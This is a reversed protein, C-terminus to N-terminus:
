CISHQCGVEIYAWESLSWPWVVTLWQLLGCQCVLDENPSWHVSPLYQLNVAAPSALTSHFKMSKCRSNTPPYYEVFGPIGAAHFWIMWYHLHTFSVPKFNKSRFHWWHSDLHCFHQQQLERLDIVAQPAWLIAHHTGWSRSLFKSTTQQDSFVQPNIFGTIKAYCVVSYTLFPVFAECDKM